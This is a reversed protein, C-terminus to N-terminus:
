QAAKPSTRSDNEPKFRGKVVERQRKLEADLITNRMYQPYLLSMFQWWTPAVPGREVDWKCLLKLFGRPTGRVAKINSRVAEDIEELDEFSIAVLAATRAAEPAGISDKLHADLVRWVGPTRVRDDLCVAVPYIRQVQDVPIPVQQVQGAHLAIIDRGLQRVVEKVERGRRDDRGVFARILGARLPEPFGSNAAEDQIRSTTIEIVAIRGKNWMVADIEGTGFDVRPEFGCGSAAAIRALIDIAYAEALYGWDEQWLRQQPEDPSKTWWFIDSSLKEVVLAPMVASVTTDPFRVMPRDRFPLSSTPGGPGGNGLVETSERATRDFYTNLTDVPIDTNALWHEPAIRLRGPNQFLEEITVTGSWYAIFTTLITVDDFQLGLAAPFRERLRAVRAALEESNRGAALMLATRAATVNANPAQGLWLRPMMGAAIILWSEVSRDGDEEPAHGRVADSCYRCADFFQQIGAPTWISLEARDSCVTFARRLLALQQVPELFVCDPEALQGVLDGVQIASRQLQDRFIQNLRFGPRDVSLGHLITICLSIVEQKRLKSLCADAEPVGGPTLGLERSGIM